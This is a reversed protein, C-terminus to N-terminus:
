LVNFVFDINQKLIRSLVLLKTDVSSQLREKNCSLIIFVPDAPDKSADASSALDSLGTILQGPRVTCDLNVLSSYCIIEPSLM